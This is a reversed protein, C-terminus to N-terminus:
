PAVEERKFLWLFMQLLEGKWDAGPLIRFPIPPRGGPPHAEFLSAGRKTVPTREIADESLAAALSPFLATM